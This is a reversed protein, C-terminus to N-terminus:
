GPYIVPNMPTDIEEGVKAGPCWTEWDVIQNKNEPEKLRMNKDMFIITMVKRMKGSTNAGARHFLWGSHFSIEGLDFPEIVHQYDTVRLRQQMLTESEDGIALERGEVITHSGASFEVPGHNLPTEQLPIWATITKDTELPWYYQDAHWPTIGGGAEKFLAQDHYIRVGNVQMLDAAIKGIRKSFILEKIIEDERWLNMLQLFAKGYTDREEVKTTVTNIAAVKKSIAENFFQLTDANLVQKLKIFRNQDFFNVQETTLVYPESLLKQIPQPISQMGSFNCTELIREGFLAETGRHALKRV